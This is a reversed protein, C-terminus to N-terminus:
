KLNWKTIIWYMFSRKAQHRTRKGMKTTQLDLNSESMTIRAMLPELREAPDTSLIKDGRGNFIWLIIRSPLSRFFEVKFWKKFYFPELCAKDITSIYKYLM